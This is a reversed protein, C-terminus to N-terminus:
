KAQARASDDEADDSDASDDWYGRRRHHQHLRREQERDFPVAPDYLPAGKVAERNVDVSLTAKLWSSDNIWQPSILVDHGLGWDSTNVVLYRIIWSRDEVIFDDVHGIDGDVAHVHYRVVADCSRLHPDDGRQRRLQAQAEVFRKEDGVGAISRLADAFMSGAWVGPGGWYFPYGYYTFQEIEHQRAVPKHTDVDPSNAVQERSLVVPLRRGHWAPEGIAVPSILVRRGKLWSGTEVVLFRVAWHEDDFFFDRVHGIPGDTAEVAFGRLETVAHLM